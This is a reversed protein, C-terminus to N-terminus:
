GGFFSLLPGLPTSSFIRKFRQFITNYKKFEPINQGKLKKHIESHVERLKNQCNDVERKLQELKEGTPQMNLQKTLTGNPGCKNLVTTMKNKEDEGLPTMTRFHELEKALIAIARSRYLTYGAVSMVPIALALANRVNNPFNSAVRKSFRSIRTTLPRRIRKRSKSRRKRSKRKRSTRKRSKSKRRTKRKKRKRRLM